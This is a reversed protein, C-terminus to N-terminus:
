HKSPTYKASPIWPLKGIGFGIWPLKGIGFGTQITFSNFQVNLRTHDNYEM